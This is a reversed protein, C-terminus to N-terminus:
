QKREFLIAAPPFDTYVGLFRVRFADRNLREFSYQYAGSSENLPRYLNMLNGVIEYRFTDVHQTATITWTLLRADKVLITSAGRSPTKESYIGEFRDLGHDKKCSTLSALALLLFANVLKM